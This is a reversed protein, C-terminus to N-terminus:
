QRPPASRSAMVRIRGTIPMVTGGRDYGAKIKQWGDAHIYPYIGAEGREMVYRGHFSFVLLGQDTCCSTLNKIIQLADTAPLHTIVSGAWILDYCGRVSTPDPWRGVVWAEIGLTSAVFAVDNARIDCARVSSDRFSATLWRTVRGAGAGFDLITRPAPVNALKVAARLIRLASRGCSLYHDLNGAFMLDEPYITTNVNPDM